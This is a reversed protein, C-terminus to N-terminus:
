KNNGGEHKKKLDDVSQIIYKNAEELGKICIDQKSDREEIRAWTTRSEEMAKDQKQEIKALTLRDQAMRDFTQNFGWYVLVGIAAFAIALVEKHSVSDWKDRLFAALFLPGSLNNIHKDPTM